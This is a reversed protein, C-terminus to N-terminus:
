RSASSPRASVALLLAIACFAMSEGLELWGTSGLPAAVTRPIHVLLFFGFIMAATLSAALRAVSRVVLGLGGAILAIGTFRVWFMQWPMWDPLLRTVSATYRLHLYGSIAMFGAMLWPTARAGWALLRALSPHAAAGTSWHGVLCAGGALAAFKFLGLWANGSTPNAFVQPVRQSMVALAVVVGITAAAQRDRRRLLLLTGAVMLTAGAAHAWWPRGPLGAPWAPFLRTTAEGFILHLLGVLALSAGFLRAIFEPDRLWLLARFPLTQAPRSSITM